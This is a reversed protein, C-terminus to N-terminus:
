MTEMKQKWLPVYSGDLYMKYNKGLYEREIDYEEPSMGNRWFPAEMITETAWNSTKVMSSM